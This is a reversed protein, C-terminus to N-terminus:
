WESARDLTRANTAISTLYSERLEPDGDLTAAIRLIRERAERIATRADGARGLAHLAEARVLRLVSGSSPWPTRSEAELGREVLSLAEAPQGLELAVHGSVGFAAALESPFATGKEVVSTAERQAGQLDGITVLARALATRAVAALFPTQHNVLPALPGLAERSRSALSDATAWAVFFDLRRPDCFARLDRLAVEVRGYSGAQGLALVTYLGATAYGWADGTRDALSRCGALSAFANGFEGAALELFARANGSHLVFAPDPDTTTAGMEEARKLFSRAFTFQGITWLGVSTSYVARGYSGSPEPQVEVSAISQLVPTTVRTDGLYAGAMFASAACRFWLTSGVPALGMAELLGEIYALPGQRIALTSALLFVLLGRETGEAGCAIGRNGLAIAADMNGGDFAARAAHVLWPVARKPEGGRELHDGMTLPDKEGVLELWEGALRHGTTRDAPTLMAYAAERLLGHRFTYETEGDGPYRCTHSFSIVEGRVLAELWADLDGIDGAGGLLAAVGGRWFVEGFVSAARVIRRAEPELRELRSQVLALVTEPLTDGGGEAVRRILEELYFANGDAREVIRTVSSEPITEGAARVLREAARPTLRGLPVEIKEAGAWMNPFVEHVEPRGLTLVMLPRAKLSRLGQGLYMVSPLDGWHLDELVVLLPRAACEAALWEGFSRQLWEGMIRADNRAARLEPSPRETSPVSLLEGLFDAIRAFDRDRCVEAVYARLRAHQEAAPDGDRLRAAQRVLQRVMMFASGAGVPDARAVLIAVDGRERTKAVFEHRLRSKGQGAPGTVLVARAVSEEVCERLTADLLGLEKDRGVCPTPKGLLTRPPEADSRWDLLVQGKDESRM